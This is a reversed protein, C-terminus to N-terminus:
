SIDVGLEDAFRQIEKRLRPLDLESYYFEGLKKLYANKQRLHDKSIVEQDICDLFIGSIDMLRAERNIVSKVFSNNTMLRKVSVPPWCSVVHAALVRYPDDYAKNFVIRKEDIIGM